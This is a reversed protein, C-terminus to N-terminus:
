IILKFIPPSIFLNFSKKQGFVSMTITLVILGIVHWSIDFAALAQQKQLAEQLYSEGFLRQGAQYATVISALPKTKSVALLRVSGKEREATIEAHYIKSKIKILHQKIQSM